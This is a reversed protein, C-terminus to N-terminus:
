HEAQKTAAPLEEAPYDKGTMHGFGFVDIKNPGFQSAVFILYEINFDKGAYRRFWEVNDRDITVGTPLNLGEKGDGPQGFFMLLKGDPNFLQVNEFAADSVYVRGASDIAIGKPRAFTGVTTGVEGYSRLFKGDANFRQIRYNSTDVVLVDGEPTIAINTPHFLEGEGSGAKGFHFLQKGTAKDLVQVCHHLIDVVYLKQDVIALDVPRFQGSEGYAGVFRDEKDYIMVQDRGTDTVYRMGDKDIRINIPRKLHGSGSGTVYEMKHKELDFVALAGAGTDAVYLRGHDMATGYPQVLRSEKQEDGLVFKAFSDDQTALDNESALSVLHQIRPADPLSPYYIKGDGKVANDPKSANSVCASLCIAFLLVSIPRLVGVIRKRAIQNMAHM